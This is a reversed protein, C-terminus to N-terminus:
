LNKSIRDVQRQPDKTYRTKKKYLKAAKNKIRILKVIETPFPQRMKDSIQKVPISVKIANSIITTLSNIAEEIGLINFDDNQVSLAITERLKKWNAKQYMQVRLKPRSNIEKKNKKLTLHIQIPSHDSGLLEYDLIEIQKIFNIINNSCLIYDLVEKYDETHKKSHDIHFTPINQNNQVILSTENLLQRLIKGNENEKNTCGFEKIRANLDGCILLNKYKHELETLFILDM